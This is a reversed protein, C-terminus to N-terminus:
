IRQRRCDLFFTGTEMLLMRGKKPLKLVGYTEIDKQLFESCNGTEFPKGTIIKKKKEL